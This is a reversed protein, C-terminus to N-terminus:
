SIGNSFRNPFVKNLDCSSSSLRNTNLQVHRSFHLEVGVADEVSVCFRGVGSADSAAGSSLV